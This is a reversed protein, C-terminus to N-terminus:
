SSSKLSGNRKLLGTAEVRALQNLGADYKEPGLMLAARAEKNSGHQVLVLLDMAAMLLGTQKMAQCPGHRAQWTTLFFFIKVCCDLCLAKPGLYRTGDMELGLHLYIEDIILLYLPVSVLVWVAAGLMKVWRWTEDSCRQM